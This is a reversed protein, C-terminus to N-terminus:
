WRGVANGDGAANLTVADAALLKLGDLDIMGARVAETRLDAQVVRAHSDLLQQELAAVRAAPDPIDDDM